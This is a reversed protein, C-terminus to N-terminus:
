IREVALWYHGEGNRRMECRVREGPQFEWDEDQPITSCACIEFKFEGVQIAKVPRSVFVDEGLLPVYITVKNTM